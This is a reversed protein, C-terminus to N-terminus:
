TSTTEEAVVLTNIESIHSYVFTSNQLIVDDTIIHLHTATM